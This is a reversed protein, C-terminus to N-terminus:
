MYVIDSWFEIYEVNEFNIKRQEKNNFEVQFYEYLTAGYIIIDDYHVSFVPSNNILVDIPIYRHGYIPFLTPANIIIDKLKEERESADTPEIGWQESWELENVIELLDKKPTEIAVKNIDINKPSTDRWNYFGKSIPVATMYFKKLEDSLNINYIQEIEKIEHENMGDELIVGNSKLIDILKESM